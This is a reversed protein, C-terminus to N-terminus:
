PVIIFAVRAFVPSVKEPFTLAADPKKHEPIFRKAQGVTSADADVSEEGKTQVTASDTEIAKGTGAAPAEMESLFPTPSPISAAEPSVPVTTEASDM